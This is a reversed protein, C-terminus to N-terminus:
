ITWYYSDIKGEVASNINVEITTTENIIVKMISSDIIEHVYGDMKQNNDPTFVKINKNIFYSVEVDEQVISFETPFRLDNKWPLGDGDGGIRYTVGNEALAILYDPNVEKAIYNIGKSFLIKDDNHDTINVISQVIMLKKNKM